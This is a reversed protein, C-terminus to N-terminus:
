RAPAVRKKQAGLLKRPKDHARRGAHAQSAAADGVYFTGESWVAHMIVALKRAVAVCAKRHCCRRAIAQGLEQGQGQGQLTMRGSAAEYLSRRVDVDGAKSIRGHVDISTGVALAALDPRLQGRQPGGNERGSRAAPLVTEV